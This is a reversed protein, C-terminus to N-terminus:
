SMWNRNDCRLLLLMEIISMRAVWNGNRVRFGSSDSHILQSAASHFLFQNPFEKRTKNTEGGLFPESLASKVVEFPKKLSSISILAEFTWEVSGRGCV